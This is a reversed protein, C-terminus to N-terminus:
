FFTTATTSVIIEVTTQKNLFKQSSKTTSYSQNISCNRICAASTESITTPTPIRTWKQRTLGGGRRMVNGITNHYSKHNGQLHALKSCLLARKKKMAEKLQSSFKSNKRKGKKGSCFVNMPCKKKLGLFHYLYKTVVTILLKTYTQKWKHLAPLLHFAQKM